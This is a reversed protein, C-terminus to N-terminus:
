LPFSYIISSFIAKLFLIYAYLHNASLIKSEESFRQDYDVIGDTYLPDWKNYEKWPIM